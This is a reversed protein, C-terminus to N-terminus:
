VADWGEPLTPVDWAPDPVGIRGAPRGRHIPSYRRLRPAFTTRTSTAAARLKSWSTKTRGACLCRRRSVFDLKEDVFDIGIPTRRQDREFNVYWHSFRGERWEHWLSWRTGLRVLGLSEGVSHERTLAL